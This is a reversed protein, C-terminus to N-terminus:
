NSKLHRIFNLMICTALVHENEEINKIKNKLEEERQQKQKKKFSSYSISKGRLEMTLTDLFLQDSISFQIERNPINNMHERNYVQLAYQDKLKM